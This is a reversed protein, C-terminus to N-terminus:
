HARRCWTDCTAFVSGGRMWVNQEKARGGGGGGGGGKKKKEEDKEGRRKLGRM